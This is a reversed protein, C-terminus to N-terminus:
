LNQEGNSDVSHFLIMDSEDAIGTATATDTLPEDTLMEEGFVNMSPVCFLRVFDPANGTESEDEDVIPM